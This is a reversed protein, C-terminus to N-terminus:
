DLGWNDCPCYNKALFNFLNFTAKNKMPLKPKEIGRDFWFFDIKASIYKFWLKPLFQLQFFLEFFAKEYKFYPNKKARQKKLWILKTSCKWIIWFMFIILLACHINYFYGKFFSWLFFGLDTELTRQKIKKTSLCIRPEHLSLHRKARSEWVCLLCAQFCM